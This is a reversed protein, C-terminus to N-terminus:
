RFPWGRRTRARRLLVAAYLLLLGDQVLVPWGLSQGLHVGFCGCNEVVLGRAFAQVALGSWLLATAAFVAAPVMPDRRPSFSLWGGAFLEGGLLAISLLEPDGWRYDALIARFGPMDSLQGAAMALFLV